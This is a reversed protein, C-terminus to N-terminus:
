ASEVRRALESDSKRDQFSFQLFRFCRESLNDDFISLSKVFSMSKIYSISTQVINGEDDLPRPCRGKVGAAPTRIGMLAGLIPSM